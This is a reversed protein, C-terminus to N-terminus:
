RKTGIEEVVYHAVVDIEENSLVGSFPPMGGGGNRVQERVRTVSEAVPSTQLDPGVHGGAGDPGHCSQCNDRFLEAGSPLQATGAQTSITTTSPRTAAADSGGGGCGVTFAIVAVVLLSVLVTARRPAPVSSIGTRM